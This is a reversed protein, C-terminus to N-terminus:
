PAHRYLHNQKGDVTRQDDDAAVASLETGPFIIRFVAWDDQDGSQKKKKEAKKNTTKEYNENYLIPYTREYYQNHSSIVLDVDYKQQESLLNSYSM